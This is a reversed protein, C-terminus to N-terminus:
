TTPTVPAAPATGDLAPLDNRGDRCFHGVWRFAGGISNTVVRVPYKERTKIDCVTAQACCSDTLPYQATGEGITIVVPTNTPAVPITEAFVLCYRCNKRYSDQPLNVVLNGGSLTISKSMVFKDCLKCNKTNCAM